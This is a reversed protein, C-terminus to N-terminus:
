AGITSSCRAVVSSITQNATSAATRRPMTFCRRRRRRRRRSVADFGVGDGVGEAEDADASAAGWRNRRARPGPGRDPPRTSSVCSPPLWRPNCRSAAERPASSGALVGPSLCSRQGPQRPPCGDDPGAPRRSARRRLPRLRGPPEGERLGRRRHASRGGARHARRHVIRLNGASRTLSNDSALGAPFGTHSGPHNHAPPRRPM